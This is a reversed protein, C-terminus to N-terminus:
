QKLQHAKQLAWGQSKREHAISVRRFLNTDGGLAFYNEPDLSGRPNIGAEGGFRAEAAGASIGGEGGGGGLMSALGRFPNAGGGDQGGGSGGYLSEKDAKSLKSEDIKAPLEAPATSLSGGVGPGYVGAGAAGSGSRKGGASPAGVIGEASTTLAGRSIGEVAAATGDTAVNETGVLNSAMDNSEAASALSRAGGVLAGTTIMTGTGQCSAGGSCCTPSLTGLGAPCENGATLYELEAPADSNGGCGLLTFAVSLAFIPLASFKSRM